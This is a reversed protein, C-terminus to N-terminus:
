ICFDSQSIFLSDSSVEPSGADDSSSLATLQFRAKFRPNGCSCLSFASLSPTSFTARGKGDM